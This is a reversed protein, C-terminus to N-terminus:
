QQMSRAQREASVIFSRGDTAYRATAKFDSDALCAIWTEAAMPRAAALDAEVPGVRLRWWWPAEAVVAVKGQDRVVRALCDVLGRLREGDLADPCGALVVGGLASNGVSDLHALVDGNRVDPSSGYASGEATLGYADVGAARLRSVMADADADAYLIRGEVPAMLRVLKDAWDSLAGHSRGGTPTEIVREPQGGELSNLRHEFDHLRTTLAGLARATLLGLISVQETVHALYWSVLRKIAVKVWRLAMWRASTPADVNVFSAEAVGRVLSELEGEQAAPAYRDLEAEIGDELHYPFDGAARRAAAEEQVQHM